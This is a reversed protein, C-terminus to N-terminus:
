TTDAFDDSGIRASGPLLMALYSEARKEYRTAIRRFRKLRNFLREVVNRRRNLAKDFRPNTRENSRAPIVPVMGRRRIDDRAKASAYGKDGGLRKPRLRPRGAGRRKVAGWDMLDALVTQESREGGTLAFVM